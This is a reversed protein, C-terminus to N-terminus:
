GLDSHPHLAPTPHLRGHGVGRSDLAFFPSREWNFCQYFAAKQTHGQLLHLQSAGAVRHVIDEVLLM